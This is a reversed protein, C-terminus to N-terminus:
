KRKTMIRYVLVGISVDGHNVTSETPITNSYVPLWVHKALTKVDDHHVFSPLIVVIL